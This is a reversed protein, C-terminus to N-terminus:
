GLRIRPDLYAYVLDAVLNFGIIVMATVMMWGQVMWPERNEISDVILLGMGRWGFVTETIV